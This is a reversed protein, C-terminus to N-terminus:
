SLPQVKDGSILDMTKKEEDRLLARCVSILAMAKTVDSGIEGLPRSTDELKKVLEELEAVKKEYKEM